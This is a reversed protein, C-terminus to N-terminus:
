CINCRLFILYIAFVVTMVWFPFGAIALLIRKKRHGSPASFIIILAVALYPVCAALFIIFLLAAGAAVGAGAM